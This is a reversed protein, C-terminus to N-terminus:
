FPIDKEMDEITRGGGTELEVRREGNIPDVYVMLDALRENQSGRAYYRRPPSTPTPRHQIRDFGLERMAKALRRGDNNLVHATPRNILKYLDVVTIRGNLDGIKLGIDEAWADETRYHDQIAAADAWLHRALRISEGSAEAIAAEGWLQSLDRKMADIDFEQHIRVPWFRRNFLDSFLSEENTTGIFVCARPVDSVKRDYSMRGRDHQRSCFGKIRTAERTSLGDMEQAEIIWYGRVHEIVEKGTEGLPLYDNFWDENVALTRVALSKNTGQTPDVFMLMEDFKCGPERVRRVAAVLALRGVARTYPTDEVGGYITLWSPQNLETGIRTVGDWNAQCKDLYTKVPHYSNEQCRVRVVTDYFPEHPLFNCESQMTLWLARQQDDDFQRLPGAGNIWSRDAFVDYSLKVGLLALAKDVNKQERPLIEGTRPNRVWDEGVTKRARALNRAVYNPPSAQDLYHASIGNTPDLFLRTLDEDSWGFRMLRCMIAWGLKSRDGKYDSADGSKILKRVTAPLDDFVGAKEINKDDPLPKDELPLRPVIDKTFSWTRTWDASALYALAPKRGRERKKTNPINITGPLRLLRSIDHCHDGTIQQWIAKNTGEVRDQYEKADLKSELKWLAQFGGGTFIIATPPPDYSEVHQRLIAIESLDDASGPLDVDVHLVRLTKVAEKRATRFPHHDPLNSTYYLNRKGQFKDLWNLLAQGESPMFCALEVEPADKPANPNIAVLLWPGEPELSGLFSLAAASDPALDPM